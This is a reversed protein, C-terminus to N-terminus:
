GYKETKYEDLWTQVEEDSPVSGGTSLLGLATDLTRVRQAPAGEPQAITDILDHVLATRREVLWQLITARVSDYEADSHHASTRM